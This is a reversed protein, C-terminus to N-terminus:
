PQGLSILLPLIVGFLLFVWAAAVLMATNRTM